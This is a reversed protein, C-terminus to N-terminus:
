IRPRFGEGLVEHVESIVVFARPDIAKVLAVLDATERRAVVCFIVERDADTYVGRGKLATAGRNLERMIAHGIELTKSSIIYAGRAYGMGEMIIDIVKSSIYLSMLGYMALDASHFCFGAITVVLTNIILIANGHKVGTYHAIIRALTGSGSTAGGMKLVLGLGVGMIVGGFVPALIPDGLDMTLKLVENFLDTFFSIMITGYLSKMGFGSGLVRLGAFFTPANFALLVLGVPWQTYYNVIVALGSMGGPAIRYPLILLTMALGFIACGITIILYEVLLVRKRPYKRQGTGDGNGGSLKDSLYDEM